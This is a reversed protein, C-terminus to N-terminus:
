DDLYAKCMKSYREDQDIIELSKILYKDFDEVKYNPQQGDQLLSLNHSLGNMHVFLETGDKLYKINAGSDVLNKYFVAFHDLESVVIGFNRKTKDIYEKKVWLNSPHLRTIGDMYGIVDYKKMYKKVKPLFLETDIFLDQELFWVWESSSLDLAKNVAINRWDEDGKVDFSNICIINDRDLNDRVFQTYDIGKNTQTFVVYVNNFLDALYKLFTRCM